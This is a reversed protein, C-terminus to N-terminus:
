YVLNDPFSFYSRFIGASHLLAKQMQGKPPGLLYRTGGRGVRFCSQPAFVVKEVYVCVAEVCDEVDENECLM